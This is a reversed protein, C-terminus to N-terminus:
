LRNRCVSLILVMNSLFGQSVHLLSDRSRDTGKQLL